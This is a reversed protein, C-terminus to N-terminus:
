VHMSYQLQQSTDAYKTFSYISISVLLQKVTYVYNYYTCVRWCSLCVQINSTPIQLAMALNNNDFTDDLAILAGHVGSEILNNAFEKLGVSQLWQIVRENSWVLVDVCCGVRTM